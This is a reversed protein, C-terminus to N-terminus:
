YVPFKFLGGGNNCQNVRQEGWATVNHKHTRAILGNKGWKWIYVVCLSSVSSLGIPIETKIDYQSCLKYIEYKTQVAM